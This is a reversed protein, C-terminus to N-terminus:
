VGAKSASSTSRAAEAIADEIVDRYLANADEILQRGQKTLRGAREHTRERWEHGHYNKM